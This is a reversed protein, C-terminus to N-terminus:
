KGTAKRRTNKRSKKSPTKAIKCKPCKVGDEAAFYPDWDWGEEQPKGDYHLCLDPSNGYFCFPGTNVYGPPPEYFTITLRRKKCLSCELQVTVLVKKEDVTVREVSVLKAREFKRQDLPLCGLRVSEKTEYLM